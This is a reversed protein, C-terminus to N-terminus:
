NDLAEHLVKDVDVPKVTDKGRNWCDWDCNAYIKFLAQSDIATFSKIDTLITKFHNLQETMPDKYSTIQVQAPLYNKVLFNYFKGEYPLLVLDLARNGGTVQPVHVLLVPVSYELRRADTTAQNWFEPIEGNNFFFNTFKVNAHDKCEYNFPNNSGIPFFLDGTMRTENETKGAGAGSSMTRLVREGSWKTLVKSMKLEYNHGKIGAGKGRSAAMLMGGLQM